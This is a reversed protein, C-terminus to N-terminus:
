ETFEKFKNIEIIIDEIEEDSKSYFEQIEDDSLQFLQTAYSDETWSTWNDKMMKYQILLIIRNDDGYRTEENLQNFKKIKIM